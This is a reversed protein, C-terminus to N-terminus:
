KRRIDTKAPCYREPRPSIHLNENLHQMVFSQAGSKEEFSGGIIVCLEGLYKFESSM